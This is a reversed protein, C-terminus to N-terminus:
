PFQGPKQSPMYPISPRAPSDPRQPRSRAMVPSIACLLAPPEPLPAPAAYDTGSQGGGIRTASLSSPQVEVISKSGNPNLRRARDPYSHTRHCFKTFHATTSRPKSITDTVGVVDGLPAPIQIQLGNMGKHFTRALANTDTCGANAAALNLFRRQRLPKLDLNLRATRLGNLLPYARKKGETDTSLKYAASANTTHAYFLGTRWNRSIM